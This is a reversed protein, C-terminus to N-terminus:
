PTAEPVVTLTYPDEESRIVDAVRVPVEQGEHILKLLDGIEVDLDRLARAPREAAVARIAEDGGAELERAMALGGGAPGATLLQDCTVRDLGRKRLRDVTRYLALIDTVTTM